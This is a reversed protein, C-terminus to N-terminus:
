DVPRAHRYLEIDAPSIIADWKSKAPTQVAHRAYGGRVPATRLNSRAWRRWTALWDVKAADRGAKAQWYDAFDEAMERVTQPTSQPFNVLVWDGWSKPLAWDDPLRAGRKCVRPPAKLPTSELEPRDDLDKKEEEISEIHHQKRAETENNKNTIKPNERKTRERNVAIESNNRRQNSRKEIEELARRDVLGAPTECLFGRAVLADRISRWLRPSIHLYHSMWKDDQNIPAETTYLLCLCDWYVARQELSLSRTKRVWADPFCKFWPMSAKNGGRIEAVDM